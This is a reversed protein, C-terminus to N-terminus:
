PQELNVVTRRGLLMVQILMEANRSQMASFLIMMGFFTVSIRVAAKLPQEFKVVMVKGAARVVIWPEAKLFQVLRVSTEM